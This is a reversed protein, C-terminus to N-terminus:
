FKQKSRIKPMFLIFNKKFNFITKSCQFFIRSGIKKQFLSIKQFITPFINKKIKLFPLTLKVLKTVNPFGTKMNQPIQIFNQMHADNTNRQLLIFFHSLMKKM